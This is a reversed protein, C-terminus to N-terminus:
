KGREYNIFYGLLDYASELQIQTCWVRDRFFKNIHGYNKEIIALQDEAKNILAVCERVDNQMKSEEQEIQM